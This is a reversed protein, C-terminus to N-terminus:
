SLFFHCLCSVISCADLGSLGPSLRVPKLCSAQTTLISLLRVLAESFTIHGLIM